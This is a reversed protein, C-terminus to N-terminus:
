TPQWIKQSKREKLGLCHWQSRTCLPLFSSVTYLPEGTLVIADAEGGSWLCKVIEKVDVDIDSHIEESKDAEHVGDFTCIQNYFLNQIAPPAGTPCALVITCKMKTSDTIQIPNNLDPGAYHNGQAGIYTGFVQGVVEGFVNASFEHSNCDRYLYNASWSRGFNHRFSHENVEANALAAPDMDAFTKALHDYVSNPKSRDSFIPSMVSNPLYVESRPKKNKGHSVSDSVASSYDIVLGARSIFVAKLADFAAAGSDHGLIVSSQGEVTTVSLLTPVLVHIDSESSQWFTVKWEPQHLGRSRVTFTRISINTVVLTGPWLSSHNNWPVILRGNIDHRDPQLLKARKLTFLRGGFDPMLCHDYEAGLYIESESPWVVANCQNVDEDSDMNAPGDAVSLPRKKYSQSTVSLPEGVARNNVTHSRKPASYMLSGTLTIADTSHGPTISKVIEKVNIMCNSNSESERLGVFTCLQNHWIDRLREPAFSPCGIVISCRTKTQDTIQNPKSAKPGPYHNGRAGVITSHSDRYYQCDPQHENPVYHFFTKNVDANAIASSGMSTFSDVLCNYVGDLDRRKTFTSTSVSGPLYDFPAM